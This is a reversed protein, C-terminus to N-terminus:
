PIKKIFYFFIKIGNKTALFNSDFSWSMGFIGINPNPKETEM